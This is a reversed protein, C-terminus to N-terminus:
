TAEMIAFLVLDIHDWKLQFLQFPEIVQQKLLAKVPAQAQQRYLSTWTRSNNFLAYIKILNSHM